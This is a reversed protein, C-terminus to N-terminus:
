TEDIEKNCNTSLLSKPSFSPKSAHPIMQDSVYLKETEGAVLEQNQWADTPTLPVDM